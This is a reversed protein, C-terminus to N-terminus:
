QHNVNHLPDTNAVIQAKTVCTHPGVPRTPVAPLQQLSGECKVAYAANRRTACTVHQYFDPLAKVVDSKNFDGTVIKLADPAQTELM